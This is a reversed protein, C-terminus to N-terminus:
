DAYKPALVAIQEAPTMGDNAQFSHIDVKCIAATNPTEHLIVYSDTGGNVWDAGIQIGRNETILAVQEAQELSIANNRAAPCQRWSIESVPMAPTVPTLTLSGFENSHTTM